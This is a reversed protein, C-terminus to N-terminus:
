LNNKLKKLLNDPPFQHVCQAPVGEWPLLLTFLMGIILISGLILRSSTKSAKKYILFALMIGFVFVLITYIWWQLLTSDACPFGAFYDISNM